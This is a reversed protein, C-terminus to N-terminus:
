AICMGAWKKPSQTSTAPIISINAVVLIRSLRFSTARNRSRPTKAHHIKSETRRSSRLIDIELRSRELESDLRRQQEIGM